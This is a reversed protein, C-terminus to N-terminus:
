QAAVTKLELIRDVRFMRRGGRMLCEADLGTFKKNMYSRDGVALPKIKRRSKEDAAKLYTIELCLGDKIAREILKIKEPLPMAQESAGYQHGTVYRVIRWDTMVDSPRVARALSLGELATCRSLAVYTQGSAFARRGLDIIVRQFTKGQSKHITVGWALKLPYQRFTGATESKIKKAEPDFTFHFLEWAHPEVPEVSGDALRVHIVDPEGAPGRMIDQVAAMTGNVWRGDPDNNLLMVQAGAKLHLEDDAPYSDRTFAGTIEAKYVHSRGDIARLRENNIEAADANTTLLRVILGRGGTEVDAGVRRNLRELQAPSVRNNRIANLIEIFGQDKQRYIKELELYELGTNAFVKANFFYPGPYYSSFLGREAGTVVPPLQYLDGFLILQAGGFPRGPERGNLRLFADVCDMLDARVMSAEDIVIADLAQYVEADKKRARKVKDPTTGPKFRFFSHITEGGVNLAAVGTPALVVIKRSTHARFYRLLTSKGTGAKGTVFVNHTGHQLLHLAKSFQENFEIETEEM